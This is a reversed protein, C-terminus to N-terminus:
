KLNGQPILIEATNIVFLNDSEMPVEDLSTYFAPEHLSINNFGNMECCYRILESASWSTEISFHGFEDSSRPFVSQWYPRYIAVQIQRDRPLKNLYEYVAYYEIKSPLVFGNIINKQLM